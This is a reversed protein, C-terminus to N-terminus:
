FGFLFSHPFIIFCIYYINVYLFYPFLSNNTSNNWHNHFDPVIEFYFTLFLHFYRQKLNCTISNPISQSPIILLSLFYFFSLNRTLDSLPGEHDRKLESLDCPTQLKCSIVLFRGAPASKKLEGGLFRQFTFVSIM